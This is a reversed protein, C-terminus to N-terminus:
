KEFQNQWDHTLEIIMLLYPLPGVFLRVGLTRNGVVVDESWWNHYCRRLLNFHWVSVALFCCSMGLLFRSLRQFSMRMRIQSARVATFTTPSSFRLFGM